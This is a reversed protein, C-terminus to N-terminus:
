GTISTALNMRSFRYDFKMTTWGARRSQVNVSKNLRRLSISPESPRSPRRRRTNFSSITAADAVCAATRVDFSKVVFL